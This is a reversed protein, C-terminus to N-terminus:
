GRTRAVVGPGPLRHQLGPAAAAAPPPVAPLHRHRQDARHRRHDAGAPDRLPRAHEQRQRVRRGARGGRRRRRHPEGRGGGPGRRLAQGPRRGRARSDGACRRCRCRTSAASRTAPRASCCTRGGRGACRTPGGAGTPSRASTRRRACRRCGAPSRGRDRRGAAGPGAGGGAARPHVPPQAPRVAGRHRGGRDHPRRVHGRGPRRPRRGRRSRPHHAAGRHRDRGAPGAARRPHGGARDRRARHDARRRGAAAARLRGGDRDDGAAAHRRLAPASVGEAAPGAAPHRGPRATRDRAPRRDAGRLGQHRRLVEGIQRGVTLVPNLSTMPEQFVYAIDRGRVDRLRSEPLELLSRDGLRVSGTVARQSPLLRTLAMATVSKGCGSEGVLALVEGTPWRRLSARRRGLVPGDETRFRVSLDRVELLPGGVTSRATAWATAPDSM